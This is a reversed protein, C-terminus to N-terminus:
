QTLGCGAALAPLYHGIEGDLIEIKRRIMDVGHAKAPCAYGAFGYYFDLRMDAAMIPLAATANEREDVLLKRWREFLTKAEDISQPSKKKQRALALLRDRIVCSEYYNATSRFTHCFWRLNSVEADYALRNTNRVLQDAQDLERVALAACDAMRRYFKAYAPVNGTPAAVFSSGALSSFVEPLRANPDACMPHAPGLFYVGVFYPGIEPSHDIAQSVHRWARRLHPGAKPGALRDAYRELFVEADLTPTWWFHNFVECSSAGLCPIFWPFVWAGDGGSAAMADARQVWRDLCPVGPCRSAEFALEPESKFHISIGSERCAKRQQQAVKGPGPLDISYDWLLKDVGERKRLTEDKVMDTFFAVSPKLKRIFGLQAADGISWVQAASYPWALVKAVPNRERAADGMRNCLNAVVADHGLAECRQCTTHGKPVGYPRMFCHHFCEGGIIIGVGSLGPLIDFLGKVSESLYQRVPPSETCLIYQGRKEYWTTDDYMQAGRIDPHALFAPHDENFVPTLSLWVFFAIGYKRAGEAYQKLRAIATPNRLSGLEPIANSTSVAYLSFVKGPIAEFSERSEAGSLVVGNFGQFVLDRHSGMWPVVGVRLPIRATSVQRGLKLIPAQRLGIENVLRVIADRLSKPDNGEIVVRRPEATIAFAGQPLTVEGLGHELLTITETADASCTQSDKSEITTKLMMRENLFDRLHSAMLQSLPSADARLRIRWANGIAMEDAGPTQQFDRGFRAFYDASMQFFRSKQYAASAEKARLNVSEAAAVSAALALQSAILNWVWRGHLGIACESAPM